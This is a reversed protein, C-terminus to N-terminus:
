PFILTQDLETFDNIFQQINSFQEFESRTHTTTVIISPSGARSAAEAGTVSDEFILCDQVELNM